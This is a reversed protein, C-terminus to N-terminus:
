LGSTKLRDIVRKQEDTLTEPISLSVRVVHSSRIPNNVAVPLGLNSFTFESGPQTGAPIDLNQVGDLVEVSLSTGLVADTYSLVVSSILTSGNRDFRDDSLISVRFYADGPEDCGPEDNGSNPVRIQDTEKIGAPIDIKVSEEVIDVGQGSCTTCPNIITQGSGNCTGCLTTITLLAAGHQMRGSGKCTTCRSIDSQSDYGRGMCNSCKCVKAFEIDKQVGHLVESLTINVTNLTDSGKVLNRPPPSHSFGGFGGFIDGFGRFMEEFGGPFGGPSHRINDYRARKESSSLVDYAESALKFKEEAEKNGPNKDPHYKVAIDRFAKKVDKESAQESIGLIEYYNKM